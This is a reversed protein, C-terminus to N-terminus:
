GDLMEFDRLLPFEVIFTSGEGLTSEAWVKGKNQEVLAKTIALGLGTGSGVESELGERRSRAKDVRYFRDFIYPLDDAPIGMGTDQVHIQCTKGNIDTMLQIQGGAPTYKIANDLLNVLIAEIDELSIALHIPEPSIDTSFTIDSQSSRLRIMEDIAILKPRIDIPDAQVSDKPASELRSLDLLAHALRGLRDAESDIESLYRKVFEPDNEGFDLIMESRLKINTVPTRLEHSASAVFLRQQKLLRELRDVMYNFAHALSGVEDSREVTTRQDLDGDAIAIATHELQQIPRVLYRSIWFSLITTLLLAVLSSFGMTYLLDRGQETVEDLSKSIQVFGLIHGAQRVPAAAFVHTQGTLPDIRVDHQESANLAAQIEVEELQNAIEEIPYVSDALPKGSASLFTVRTEADDAYTLAVQQLRKSITEAQEQETAATQAADQCDSFVGTEIEYAEPPSTQTFFQIYACSDINLRGNDQDFSTKKRRLIPQAM